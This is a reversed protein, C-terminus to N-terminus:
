GCCSWGTFIQTDTDDSAPVTGSKDAVSITGHIMGMWCSYQFTGAKDPMFELINEGTQFTHEVGYEQIYMKYNCGNISGEPANIIWKVPIGSQVTINPYQGSSLTSTVIQVGDVIETQIDDSSAAQSPLILSRFGSSLGSLSLGQSLMALGLVVVLVAGANMVAHTFKKSLVAILSGLGLMLPVTGLSFCFMALAGSLPNCSALAVIQMSQLPGCPMLGNLLGVIFPGKANAKRSNIKSTLFKPLPLNIKRLGPFLNLMNIGMIIMCIGALLKISGQLILPTGSKASGGLLFGALGLLGGILTYSIVRGLNYFLSPLFAGASNEKGSAENGSVTKKRPLSQSLNIGGCMALCHVSTILGIIFLMGYSMKTDALRSPALLNLLGSHQLIMFLFLIIMFYYLTRNTDQAPRAGEPLVQYGLAEIISSIREPSLIDSYYTIDATGESYSVSAKIIGETNKLKKQIKNQCNICTMGSIALRKNVITTKM